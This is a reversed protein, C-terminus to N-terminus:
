SGTRTSLPVQGVVQQVLELQQAQRGALHQQALLDDAVDVIFPNRAQESSSTTV